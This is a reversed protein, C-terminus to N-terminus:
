PRKPSYKCWWLRSEDVERRTSRKKNTYMTPAWKRLNWSEVATCFRKGHVCEQQPTHAAGCNEMGRVRKALCMCPQHMASFSFRLPAINNLAAGTDQM